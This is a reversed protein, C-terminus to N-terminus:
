TQLVGDRRGQRPSHERWTGAQRSKMGRRDAACAGTAAPSWAVGRAGPPHVHQVDICCRHQIRRAGHRLLSFAQWRVRRHPSPGPRESRSSTRSVGAGTGRERAGSRRGKWTRRVSDAPSVRGVCVVEGSFVGILTNLLRLHAVQGSREKSCEIPLRKKDRAFITGGPSLIVIKPLLPIGASPVWTEFPSPQHLM